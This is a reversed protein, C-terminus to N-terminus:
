RIAIREVMRTPSFSSCRKPGLRGMIQPQAIVPTPMRIVDIVNTSTPWYMTRATMPKVRNPM